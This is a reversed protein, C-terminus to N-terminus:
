LCMTQPKRKHLPNTSCWNLSLNERYIWRPKSM